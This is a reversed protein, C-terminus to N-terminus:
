KLERLRINRYSMYWGQSMFGIAGEAHNTTRGTAVVKGNLAVKVEGDKCTVHTTNWEGVPRTAGKRAGPDDQGEFEIEGRKKEHVILTGADTYKGDVELSRPWQKLLPITIHLLVGGDGQFTADDKLESPREYRWEYTLEYNRYTQRTYTFGAKRGTIAMCGDKILFTEEPGGPIWFTFGAYNKGNFLTLWEASPQAQPSVTALTTLLVALMPM